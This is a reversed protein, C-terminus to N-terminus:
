SAMLSVRCGKISTNITYVGLISPEGLFRDDQWFCGGLCMWEAAEKTELTERSLRLCPCPEYAFQCPGCSDFPQPVEKARRGFGDSGTVKPRLADCRQHNQPCEEIKEPMQLTWAGSRESVGEGPGREVEDVGVVLPCGWSGVWAGGGM